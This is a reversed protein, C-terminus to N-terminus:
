GHRVHEWKLVKDSTSISKEWIDIHYVDENKLREEFIMTLFTYESVRNLIGLSKEVRILVM